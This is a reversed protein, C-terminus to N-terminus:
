KSAVYKGLPIEKETASSIRKSSDRRVTTASSIPVSTPLLESESRLLTALYILILQVSLQFYNKISTPFSIGKKQTCISEEEM